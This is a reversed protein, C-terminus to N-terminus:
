ENLNFVVPVSMRFRVIQGLRRGPEFRWKSVARLTPEEFIRDTSRVVRPNLVRGAEDVVFEVLVEGGRGEQKAAMPYHPPVRVRTRPENDLEIGPFLGAGTCEGMGGPIGVPVPELSAIGAINLVPRVSVPVTFGEYNLTPLDPSVPAPAEARREKASEAERVDVM